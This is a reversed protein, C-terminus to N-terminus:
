SNWIEEFLEATMGKHYRVRITDGQLPLVSVYELLTHCTNLPFYTSEGMIAANEAMTHYGAAKRVYLQISMPAVATLLVQDPNIARCAHKGKSRWTANGSTLLGKAEETDVVRDMEGVMILGAVNTAIALMSEQCSNNRDIASTFATNKPTNLSFGIPMTVPVEGDLIARRFKAYGETLSCDPVTIHDGKIEIPFPGM